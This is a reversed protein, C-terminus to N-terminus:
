VSRESNARSDLDAFLLRPAVRIRRRLPEYFREDGSVRRARRGLIYACADAVQLGLSERKEAFMPAHVVRELQLLPTGIREKIQAGFEESRMHNHQKRIAKSFEGNQEYILTAVESPRGYGQMYQEIHQACVSSALVLDDQLATKRAKPLDLKKREVCGVVVTFNFKEPIECLKQLFDQRRPKEYKERKINKGGNMLETAHFVFGQRDEPRAFDDAMDKLYRELSKLAIDADVIIGAVVVFPEKGIDGTCSEDLYAFRLYNWGKPAEDIPSAHPLAVRSLNPSRARGVWFSLGPGSM